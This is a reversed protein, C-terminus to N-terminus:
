PKGGGVFGYLVPNLTPDNYMKLQRYLKFRRQGKTVQEWLEALCHLLDARQERLLSLREGNRTRHREEADARTTQEKMHFIKLALISLRDLILGPTESHLAASPNQAIGSLLLLDLREVLDNRGQNLRDIDRKVAAIAGDSARPDRAEDEKHWLEFNARHQRLVVEELESRARGESPQLGHWQETARQQLDALHVANLM